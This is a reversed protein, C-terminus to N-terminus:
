LARPIGSISAGVLANATGVVTKDFFVSTWSQCMVFTGGLIGIFFRLVYLAQANFATGALGSNSDAIVCLEM